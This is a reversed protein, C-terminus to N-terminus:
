MPDKRFHCWDIEQIKGISIIVFEVGNPSYNVSNCIFTIHISSYGSQKVIM